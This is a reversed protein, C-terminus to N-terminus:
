QLGLVSLQEISRDSGTIFIDHLEDWWFARQTGIVGAVLFFTAPINHRNLIPLATHFCDAYGDDFTIAARLGLDPRDELQDLGVVALKHHLVELHEEFHRPSVCLAYPDPHCDAIRHYLLVLKRNMVM